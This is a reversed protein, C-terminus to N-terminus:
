KINKFYNYKLALDNKKTIYSIYYNKEELNEYSIHKNNTVAANEVFVNGDYWSYDSFFVIGDYDPNLADKGIYNNPNYDIGFLNLTTPLINLQSTVKNINTKKTDNSWIFFPTKNILNNSTDKYDNLISKDELTYLYHDAFVIIVTDNILQKEELNQLLLEIMYDTEKAQRRVCEEETMKKMIVEHKITEDSDLFSEEITLITNTELINEENQQKKYSIKLLGEKYKEYLNLEKLIDETNLLRCVGKTNDFPMHGSYTIIYDVFYKDQPFLNQNFNENLILERDLTYSKDKYDDIDILGYYNDYGWNIYNTTRSYYEGTNMHFANITYGEKKFLKAMSYPFNNKNFTYANQTYSLPTIFGTNVAFESNFTSGGGNYYSYHNNFNYSNNLMSYLTPTDEETLLWNDLGELQIFILNKDIFIGTYKNTHDSDYSSFANNLFDIDESNEQEETKLFTIYFNRFVYEYIGSIKMSKNSDNFSMYINRPNKWTSWTLESNAKGLTIPILSHILIFIIIVKSFNLYNNQTKYPIVKYGKRILFLIFIFSIYILINANKITDIVYPLGESTSELLNFDFFTKTMGFYISNVLFFISFLISTSLYIIKGIKKKLTLSVGLFLFIWITIFLNTSLEFGDYFDINKALYRIIIDIILFPLAMYIIYKYEKIYDLIIDLYKNIKEKNIIKNIRKLTKM